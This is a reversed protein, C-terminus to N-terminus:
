RFALHCVNKAHEYSCYFDSYNKTEMPFHLEVESTPIFKERDDLNQESLYAKLAVRFKRRVDTHLLAFANWSSAKFVDIDATSQFDQFHSTSCIASLNKIVHNEYAITCRPQPVDKSSFVGYPLNDITFPNDIKM